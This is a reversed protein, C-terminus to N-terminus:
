KIKLINLTEEINDSILIDLDNIKDFYINEFNKDLITYVGLINKLKNFSKYIGLDSYHIIFKNNSNELLINSEFNNKDLLFFSNIKNENLYNIIEVDFSSVFYNIKEYKKLLCILNDCYKKKNRPYDKLEIDLFYKTGNFENLIDKLTPININELKIEEYTMDIIKKNKIYEDHYLLLINDKSLNIDFEVGFIIEETNSYKKIENLSKITNDEYNETIGRHALLFKM